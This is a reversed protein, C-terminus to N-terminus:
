QSINLKKKADQKISKYYLKKFAKAMLAINPENLEKVISPPRKM